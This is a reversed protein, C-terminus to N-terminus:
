LLLLAFLLSVSLCISTILREKQQRTREVQEYIRRLGNAGFALAACVAEEDKGMRWGMQSIITREYKSLPLDSAAETWADLLDFNENLRNKVQQFYANAAGYDRSLLSPIPSLMFRVEAEMSEFAAALALRLRQVSREAKVLSGGTMLGACLILGAGLWRLM